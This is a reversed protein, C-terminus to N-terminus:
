QWRAFYRDCVRSATETGQVCTSYNEKTLNIARYLEELITQYGIRNPDGVDLEVCKRLDDSLMFNNECCKVQVGTSLAVAIGIVNGFALVAVCLDAGIKPRSMDPYINRRTCAVSRRNSWQDAVIRQCTRDHCNLLVVSQGISQQSRRSLRVPTAAVSKEVVLRAAIFFGAM